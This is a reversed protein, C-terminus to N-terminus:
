DFDYAKYSGGFFSRGFESVYDREETDYLLPSTGEATIELDYKDSLKDLEKLFAEVREQQNM